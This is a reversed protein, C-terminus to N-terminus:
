QLGRGTESIGIKRFFVNAKRFFITPNLYYIFLYIVKLSLGRMQSKHNLFPEM